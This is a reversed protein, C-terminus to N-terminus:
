DNSDATQSFTSNSSDIAKSAEFNSNYDSSQSASGQPAVNSGSEYIQVEFMQLQEGTTAEIRVKDASVSTSVSFTKAILLEGCTNGLSQTAAVVGKEDHLTITALSFRCLCGNPDSAVIDTSSVFTMLRFQNRWSLRGTLVRTERSHTAFLPTTEM